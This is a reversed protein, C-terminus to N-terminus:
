GVLRALQALINDIGVVSKLIDMKVLGSCGTPESLIDLGKLVMDLPLVASALGGIISGSTICKLTSQGVYSLSGDSNVLENCSHYLAIQISSCISVFDRAQQSLLTPSITSEQPSTRDFPSNAESQSFSTATGSIVVGKIIDFSNGSNVDHITYTIVYNGPPFPTTRTITFPIFVEKNQHHSIIETVPLGEQGTLVNGETDSITFDATFNIAYLTKNKDPITDYEFGSPEIYLIIDEGPKFTNSSKNDYVGFGLPDSSVFTDKVSSFVQPSANGTPIDSINFQKQVTTNEDPITPIEPPMTENGTPSANIESEVDKIAQNELAHKVATSNINISNSIYEAAPLFTEYINSSAVFMFHTLIDSPNISIVDLVNRRQEGELQQSSLFSCAIANNLIYTGCDIPKILNFDDYQQYASLYSKLADKASPYSAESIMLEVWAFSNGKHDYRFMYDIPALKETKPIQSANWNSPIQISFLADRDEFTNWTDQAFSHGFNPISIVALLALIM